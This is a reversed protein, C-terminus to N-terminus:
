EQWRVQVTIHVRWGKCNSEDAGPGCEEDVWRVDIGGLGSVYVSQYDSSEIGTYGSGDQPTTLAVNNLVTKINKYLTWRSSRTPAYLVIDFFARSTRQNSDLTSADDMHLTPQLSIQYTKMKKHELWGENVIPTWVGDPSVTNNELLDKIATYPDTLPVAM